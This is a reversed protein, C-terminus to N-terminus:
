SFLFLLIARVFLMLLFFLFSGVVVLRNAKLIHIDSIEQRKLGITPKKFERGFYTAKGGLQIGLAGAVAAETHAANPSAHALRDRTFVNYADQWNEKLLWAAVVIAIGSIRAPIFNAVDDLFAAAQGFYIYRENTYAIMSDMTNIAKYAIAGCAALYVPQVEMFPALFTAVIAYFLPATIGDVMNEAVTEVTAKVVGKRDLTATDRGVIMAVAKRALDLPIDSHLNLMTYVARSHHLLDKLAVATYLIFIALLQALLPSISNVVSLVFASVGVTIFLVSLVTFVGGVRESTCVLRFHHECSKCVIGIGKVPHPLWRPDGFLLDLLMAIILQFEFSYM